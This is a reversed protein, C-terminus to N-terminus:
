AKRFGGVLLRGTPRRLRLRRPRPRPARVPLGATCTRDDLGSAFGGNRIPDADAARAASPIGSSAPAAIVLVALPGFPQFPRRRDM